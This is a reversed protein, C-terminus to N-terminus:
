LLVLANVEQLGLHSREGPIIEECEPENQKGKGKKKSRLM